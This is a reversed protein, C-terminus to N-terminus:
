LTNNKIEQYPTGNVELIRVSIATSDLCEEIYYAFDLQTKRDNEDKTGDMVLDILIKM